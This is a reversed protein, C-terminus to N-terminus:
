VMMIQTRDLPMSASRATGRSMNFLGYDAPSVITLDGVGYDVGADASSSTVWQDFPELDGAIVRAQVSPLLSHLDRFVPKPSVILTRLGTTASMRMMATVLDYVEDERSSQSEHLMNALVTLYQKAVKGSEQGPLGLGLEADNAVSLLSIATQLTLSTRPLSMVWEKLDGDGYGNIVTSVAVRVRDDNIEPLKAGSGAKMATMSAIAYKGAAKGEADLDSVADLVNSVADAKELDLTSALFDKSEGSLKDLRDAAKGGDEAKASSDEAVPYFGNIVLLPGNAGHADEGNVKNRMITQMVALVDTSMGKLTKIAEDRNTAKEGVTTNSVMGSGVADLMITKWGTTKLAAVIRAAAEDAKDGTVLMGTVEDKVDVTWKVDDYEFRLGNKSGTTKQPKSKREGIKKKGFM